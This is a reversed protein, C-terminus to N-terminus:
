SLFISFALIIQTFLKKMRTTPNLMLGTTKPNKGMHLDLLAFSFLLSSWKFWNQLESNSMKWKFGIRSDRMVNMWKPSSTGFRDTNCCVMFATGSSCPAWQWYELRRHEVTQICWPSQSLDKQKDLRPWWTNGNWGLPCCFTLMCM